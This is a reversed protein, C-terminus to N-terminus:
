RDLALWANVYKPAVLDYSAQTWHVTDALVVPEPDIEVANEIDVADQQAKILDWHTYTADNNHALRGYVVPLTPQGLDARLDAVMQAFFVGWGYNAVATGEIGAPDDGRSDFEGQAFFFGAVPLGTDQIAALMDDYLAYGKQWAAINTGSQAAGIMGVTGGTADVLLRAMTLIPGGPTVVTGPAVGPDVYWYMGEITISADQPAADYTAEAGARLMNSQGAVVFLLPDVTVALAEAPNRTLVLTM